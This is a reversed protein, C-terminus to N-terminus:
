DCFSNEIVEMSPLPPVSNADAILDIVTCGDAEMATRIATDIEEVKEVRIGKVGCAKAVAAHDVSTLDCADTYRGKCRLMEAFAQFRLSKNNIVVLVIDIGHRKCTELESWVHGFGGDGTLCFVKKDPNGIKAGMAMPLGSGLGALGRSFLFKRNGIAKIYNALWISSFSADAVLIHNKDLHKELKFMFREIKVPLANSLTVDKAEEIHSLRAKAIIEEINKRSAIRKSLDQKLLAKGLAALTLKADGTLRLSEYNRGIEQPDIDVHIYKAEKPLLTWSDTGNQNTRSGVLLIVDAKKILPTLFKANGRKGMIQGMTGMSLPHLEDVAGKGMMTTGVPVSCKEQIERLEESAGSGNVGGGAYIFPNNANALLEVATQIALPNAVTRDLPYNGLNTKRSLITEYQTLDNILDMPCLLVAPGPRGSAAVTFAMDVYDEIRDRSLLKKVWKSVGLFLKEHDLEQFANKGLLNMPVDQVLAVIPHAAMLCEALGPVILTAAPGNQAAVVPVKGTSMAYGQAMYTGANEQRYGIQKIGLDHCALTIASPNSQGFIYEVGNRKLAHAFREANTMKELDNDM